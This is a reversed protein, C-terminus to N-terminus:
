VEIATAGDDQYLVTGDDQTLVELARVTITKEIYAQSNLTPVIWLTVEGSSLAKVKGSPLVRLATGEKQYVVSANAGAPMVLPVIMFEAGIPLVDPVDAYVTAPKQALPNVGTLGQVQNYATNAATVAGNLQSMADELLAREQQSALIEQRQELILADATLTSSTALAAKENANSAAANAESTAVGALRGQEKAYDGQTKAYDAMDNANGIATVMEALKNTFELKRANFWTKWTGQVGTDESTGFWSNWAAKAAAIWAEATAKFGNAGEYWGKVTTYISNASTGQVKTYDGQEKAYDGQNKAYTGQTNAYGGKDLAYDGQEKAYDGQTKAYAAKENASSTAAIANAVVEDIDLRDGQAKAYDGQTKAYAAMERALAEADDVNAMILALPVRVTKLVGGLEQIVPMTTIGTLVVALEVDEITTQHTRLYEKWIPLFTVCFQQWEEQRTPLM